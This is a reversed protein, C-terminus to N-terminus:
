LARESRESVQKFYTVYDDGVITGWDKEAIGLSVMYDILECADIFHMHSAGEVKVWMKVGSTDILPYVIESQLRMIAFLDLTTPDGDDFGVGSVIFQISTNTPTRLQPLNAPDIQVAPNFLKEEEIFCVVCAMDIPAIAKVREDREYGSAEHGYGTLLAVGGGASYGTVGIKDPMISASLFNDQETWRTIEWSVQFLRPHFDDYFKAISGFNALESEAALADELGLGFSVVIFGWTSLNECLRVLNGPNNFAGATVFIIPFTKSPIPAVDGSQSIQSTYYSPLPYVVAHDSNFTSRAGSPYWVYEHITENYFPSSTTLERFGLAYPGCVTLGELTSNGLSHCCGALTFLLITFLM